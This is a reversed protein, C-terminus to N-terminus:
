QQFFLGVACGVIKGVVDCGVIDGVVNAGVIVDCGVV